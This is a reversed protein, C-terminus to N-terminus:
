KRKFTFLLSLIWGLFLWQASFTICFVIINGGHVNGSAIASIIFPLLIFQRWINPIRVHWLFYERLPSTEGLVLWTITGAVLLTVVSILWQIKARRSM